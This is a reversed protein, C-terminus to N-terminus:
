DGLRRAAGTGVNVVYLRSEDGGSEGYRSYRGILLLRGDPSWAANGSDVSDVLVRSAGSAVDTLVIEWRDTEFSGTTHVIAAGDPRWRPYGNVRPDTTLRRLGAGDAGVVYIEPNGDRDSVFAIWRGDPSWQPLSGPGPDGPFLRAGSGDAEMLYLRSAGDRDSHFVITRGDPSWSPAGEASQANTLNRASADGLGLAYIEDNGDRYSKALITAGDPSWALDAEFADNVTLRRPNGGDADAVYVEFNIPQGARVGERNSIYAVQRGDPSWAAHTDSGPLEAGDPAAGCGIAAAAFLVARCAASV